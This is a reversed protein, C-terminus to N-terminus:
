KLNKRRAAVYLPAIWTLILYITWALITLLGSVDPQATYNTLFANLMIAGYITAIFFLGVVLWLSWRQLRYLGFATILSLIGVLAVHFLGLGYIGLIVFNAVGAILYFTAFFFMGKHEIGLRSRLGM